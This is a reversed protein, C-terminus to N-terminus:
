YADLLWFNKELPWLSWISDLPEDTDRLLSDFWSDFMFCNDLRDFIQFALTKIKWFFFFIYWLDFYWIKSYGNITSKNKTPSEFFVGTFNFPYCTKKLPEIRFIAECLDFLVFICLAYRFPRNQYYQVHTCIYM